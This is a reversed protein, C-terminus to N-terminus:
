NANKKAERVYGKLQKVFQANVRLDSAVVRELFGNAARHSLPVPHDELSDMLSTPARILPAESLEVEYRGYRNGWAARPWSGKGEIRKEKLDCVPDGPNELRTGIWKAVPVSVANGVLRWRQRGGNEEEKAARTWGRPFGQLREADGISPTGFAERARHWIGPPSPISLGSGGKLTPIADVAWGLGTNGETWYFGYARAREPLSETWDETDDAFLVRRPDCDRSAVLIVRRRRHALGFSRSDVTRYAWRWNMEDLKATLAHMARGKALKLMFPVNELVLWAPRPRTSSILRFVEKVLGSSRGAIGKTLGAQSLDQCPFGAVVAECQALRTLKRVDHDIEVGPFHAELVKRAVPDFECLQVTEHGARRMGEELGGIGAFLGSIRM